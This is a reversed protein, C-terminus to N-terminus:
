AARTTEPKYVSFAYDFKPSSADAATCQDDYKQSALLVGALPMPDFMDVVMYEQPVYSSFFVRLLNQGQRLQNNDRLLKSPRSGVGSDGAAM